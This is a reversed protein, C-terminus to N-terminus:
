KVYGAMVDLLDKVKETAELTAQVKTICYLMGDEVFYIEQSIPARQSGTCIFYAFKGERYEYSYNAIKKQVKLIDNPNTYDKVKFYVDLYYREDNHEIQTGIRGFIWIKYLPDQKSVAISRNQISTFLDESSVHDFGFLKVGTFENFEEYSDFRNSIYKSKRESNSREIYKDLDIELMTTEDLVIDVCYMSNILYTFSEDLRYMNICVDWLWSICFGFVAIICISFYVKGITIKRIPKDAMKLIKEDLMPDHHVTNLEECYRTVYEECERVHEEELIKLMSNECQEIGEAVFQEEIRLFSAIEYQKYREYSQLHFWARNKEPLKQVCGLIEGISHYGSRKINCKITERLLWRRLSEGFPVQEKRRALKFFVKQYIADASETNKGKILAMRYVTDGYTDIIEKMEKSNYVGM